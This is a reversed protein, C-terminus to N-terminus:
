RFPPLERRVRSRGSRAPRKHGGRLQGHQDPPLSPGDTDPLLLHQRRRTTFHDDNIYEPHPMASSIIALHLSLCLTNRALAPCKSTQTRPRHPYNRPSPASGPSPQPLALPPLTWTWPRQFFYQFLSLRSHPFPYCSPESLPSPLIPSRAPYSDFNFPAAMKFRPHCNTKRRVSKEFILSLVSRASEKEQGQPHVQGPFM